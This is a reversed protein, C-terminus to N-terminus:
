GTGKRSRYVEQWRKLSVEYDKKGARNGNNAKRCRKCCGRGGQRSPPLKKKGSLSKSNTVQHGTKPVRDKAKGSRM